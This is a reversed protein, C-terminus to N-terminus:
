LGCTRVGRGRPHRPVALASELESSVFVRVITKQRHPDHRQKAQGRKAARVIRRRRKVDEVALPFSTTFGLSIILLSEALHLACWQERSIATSFNWYPPMLRM